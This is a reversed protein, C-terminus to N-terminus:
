CNAPQHWRAQRTDALDAASDEAELSMLWEVIVQDCVFNQLKFDDIPVILEAESDDYTRANVEAM